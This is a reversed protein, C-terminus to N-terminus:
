KKVLAEFGKSFKMSGDHFVWLAETDELSEILAIGQDYPMNYIATSLTDAMGSDQCIISVASFYNAPMLTDPDIIHHYEKGEVTYYREYDGSSVLSLDKLALTFLSYQDSDKDPNRIGVNWPANEKGKGGIARVNGGISLLLNTYGRDIAAKTVQETAYGKAIAGVDLSMDKDQLFVTSKAEDIILNDLNTHNNAEKLLDMPPLKANTPDNIGETRYDHWIELVSGMGINVTGKSIEYGKISYKLLDIIKSDVKVPEIGANDNITKINNIGDYSNYKDYLQHYIELEDRIFNALEKFEDENKTYAVIETVTNFLFLFSGEYKKPAQSCSSTILITIILLSAFIHKKM